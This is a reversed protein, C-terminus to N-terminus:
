GDENNDPLIDSASGDPGTRIWKKATAMLGLATADPDDDDALLLRLKAALRRRGDAVTSKGKGLLEAADRVTRDYLALSTREELSLQQWVQGAAEATIFDPEEVDAAPDVDNDLTQLIPSQADFRVQAVRALDDLRVAGRAEELVAAAFRELSERTALPGRREAHRWHVVAIDAAEWSAAVLDDLRGQWPVHPAGRLIWRGDHTQDFAHSESLVDRLRRIVAGRETARARDRLFNRVAAELLRAASAEDNAQAVIASLRRPTQGHALFEHAVEMVAEADWSRHGAPPPMNSFRGLAAVTEYLLAAGVSGVRGSEQLEALVGM